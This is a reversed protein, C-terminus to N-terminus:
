QILISSQNSSILLNLQKQIKFSNYKKWNSFALFQLGMKEVELTYTEKWCVAGKVMINKDGSTSIVLYIRDGKKLANNGLILTGNKSLNQMQLLEPKFILINKFVRFYLNQYWYRKYIFVTVGHCIFRDFLRRDKIEDM